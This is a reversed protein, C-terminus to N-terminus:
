LHVLKRRIQFRFEKLEEPSAKRGVLRSLTLANMVPISYKGTIADIGNFVLPNYNIGSAELVRVTQRNITMMLHSGDPSFTILSTPERAEPVVDIPLGYALNWVWAIQDEDAVIAGVDSPDFSALELNFVRADLVYREEGTLAEWLRTTQDTAMTMVRQSRPLWRIEKIRDTHGHLLAMVKGDAVQWIRAIYSGRRRVHSSLALYDGDPSWVAIGGRDRADGLAFLRQGSSVDLLFPAEGGSIILLQQKTPSWSISLLRDQFDTVDLLPQLNEVDWVRVFHADDGGVALQESDVSWALKTVAGTEPLTHLRQGSLPDWLFVQGATNFGAILRGDPSWVVRKILERDSGALLWLRGSDRELVRVTGDLCRTLIYAGNPHWKVSLIPSNHFKWHKTALVPQIIPRQSIAELGSRVNIRVAPDGLVVFNRMDLMATYTNEYDPINITEQNLDSEMALEAFQSTFGVYRNRFAEMAKGVTYGRQLGGILKTYLSPDRSNEQGLGRFSYTYIPDVHGIIALAGGKSHSMLRQPLKSIFAHYHKRELGQEDLAATGASNSAFFFAILGLLRAEDDIDEATLYYNPQEDPKRRSEPGPYNGCVLSGSKDIRDPDPRAYHIGHSATLLFTPTEAGGVLQQLKEKTAEDATFLFVKWANAETRIAEYLPEILHQTSYRTAPDNPHTVGFFTAIPSKVPGATEAMVVSHAYRAYAALSDFHVRGVAYNLSLQYQFAFPIETPSGVILLYFPVKEWHRDGSGIGQRQLFDHARDGPHYGDAGMFRQFREGAAAQRHDLLESLAEIIATDYEQPFIVGWGYETLLTGRERQRTVEYDARELLEQSRTLFKTEYPELEPHQDAVWRRAQDLEAETLLDVDAQGREHWFFAKRLWSEIDSREWYAANSTLIPEVLRDHTLEYWTDDGRLSARIIYTNVLRDVAENALGGSEGAERYVLGRTRSPTILQRGFWNRMRRESLDSERSVKQVASEYYSSLAQDVNGYRSVDNKGIVTQDPPLSQWLQHCVVQLFIPEVFYGLVDREPEIGPQTPGLQLRRLNDVLAEAAGPEYTRGAAQAPKSVAAVAATETLRQIRYRVRLRDPLQGAFYDLRAIYDERMALLLGLHPYEGLCDRLQNFLDAREEYHTPHSTFLEEFQDLILLRPYARGEDQDYVMYPRLGDVLTSDTLDSAAADRGGLSYLLNFVYINNVKQPDIGPPLEGGVRSTPLVVMKKKRERLGPVVSAQLLSTKGAGSEAYFLVVQHAIILAALQNSEQERGFFYRREKETFSKAGAYPNELMEAM